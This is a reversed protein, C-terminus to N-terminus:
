PARLERIIPKIGLTMEMMTPLMMPNIAPNRPFVASAIMMRAASMTKDNGEKSNAITIMYVSPALRSFRNIASLRIM